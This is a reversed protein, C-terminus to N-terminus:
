VKFTAKFATIADKMQQMGAEDLKGTTRITDLLESQGAHMAAVLEQEFRRVATVPLDDLFGQTGAYVSVVQDVVDM